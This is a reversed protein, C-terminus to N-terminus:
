FLKKLELFEKKSIEGKALRIKLILLPDNESVINESSNPTKIIDKTTDPIDKTTDPLQIFGGLKSYPDIDIVPIGEINIKEKPKNSLHKEMLPIIEEYLEFKVENIKQQVDTTQLELDDIHNKKINKEHSLDVRGSPDQAHDWNYTFSRENRKLRGIEYTSDFIMFKIKKNKALYSELKNKLADIKPNTISNSISDCPKCAYNMPMGIWDLSFSEYKKETFKCWHCTIKDEFHKKIKTKIEELEQVNNWKGFENKTTLHKIYHFIESPLHKKSDSIYCLECLVNKQNLRMIMMNPFKCFLSEHFHEKKIKQDRWGLKKDCNHCKTM